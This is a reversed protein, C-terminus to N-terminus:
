KKAKSKKKAVTAKKKGLFRREAQDLERAGALFADSPGLKLKTASAKKVETLAKQVSEDAALDAYAKTVADVDPRLAALAAKFADGKATVDADLAARDKDKGPASPTKQAKQERTVEALAFKVQDRQQIIPALMAGQPNMGGPRGFGIPQSSGPLNIRQNLDDLTEQLEARRSELEAAQTAAQSAAAQRDAAAAYDAFAARVEKMKALVPGEAEIVYARGSKELGKGKLVAEATTEGGRVPVWGSGLAVVLWALGVSRDRRM